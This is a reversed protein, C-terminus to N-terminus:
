KLCYYFMNYVFRLSTGYRIHLLTFYKHAVYIYIYYIALTGLTVPLLALIGLHTHACAHTHTHTYTHSPPLEHHPQTCPHPAHCIPPPHRSIHYPSFYIYPGISCLLMSSSAYFCQLHLVSVSFIFCWSTLPLADILQLHLIVLDFVICWLTASLAQFTWLCVLWWSAASSVNYTLNLCWCHLM